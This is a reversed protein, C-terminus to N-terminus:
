DMIAIEITWKHQFKASLIVDFSHHETCFKLIVPCSIMPLCSKKKKVSNSNLILNPLIYKIVLNGQRSCSFSHILVKNGSAPIEPLSLYNCGVTNHSAIVKGQRLYRNRAGFDEFTCHRTDVMLLDIYESCALWLFHMVCWPWWGDQYHNKKKTEQGKGYANM